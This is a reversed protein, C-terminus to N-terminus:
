VELPEEETGMGLDAEKEAEYEPTTPEPVTTQLENEFKDFYLKLNTLLYDHFLTRDQSNSLLDYADLIQQSVKKFTLEAFNRGTEDQGEIGFADEEEDPVGDGDIDIFADDETPDDEIEIEVGEEQEMVPAQDGGATLNVEPPALLDEAGKVIHARFSERQTPETTMRKFDKEIVPIINKLLDELVNIGTSNHPSEDAVAEKEQLILKRIVTRLQKEENLQAKAKKENKDLVINIAKRIHERLMQEEMFETRDISM